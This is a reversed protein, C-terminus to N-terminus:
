SFTRTKIVPNSKNRKAYRKERVAEVEKQIEELDPPTSKNSRFKSLLQKFEKKYDQKESIRILKLKALEEILKKAKPNIIEIQITSM